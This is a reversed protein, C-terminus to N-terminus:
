AGEGAPMFVQGVYFGGDRVLFAVTEAVSAPTGGAVCNMRVGKPAVEVALSRTFALITGTAAARYTDDAGGDVAERSSLTVITGRGTELMGPLVAACANGTGGLVTHLLRRWDADDLWGFPGEDGSDVATVLVSIPGLRETVSGIAAALADRDAVDAVVSMSGPSARLDIGAVAYGDEELRAVIARGRRGAAGTVVAAGIRTASM